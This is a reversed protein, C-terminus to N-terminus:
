LLGSFLERTRSCNKQSGTPINLASCITTNSMKERGREVKCVRAVRSYVRKDWQGAEVAKEKFFFYVKDDDPVTLTRSPSPASSARARLSLPPPCLTLFLLFTLSSSFLYYSSIVIQIESPPFFCISELLQQFWSWASLSTRRVTWGTTTTPKPASTTNVAARSRQASSWLTQELSTSQPGLTCNMM